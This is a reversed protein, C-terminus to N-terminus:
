SSIVSLSKLCKQKFEEQTLNFEKGSYKIIEEYMSEINVLNYDNNNIDVFLKIFIIDTHIRFPHAKILVYNLVPGIEDAGIEKDEGENFKVLSEIYNFINYICELKKYPTREINIQKFENLIDPLMIDFIYDKKIILNPEIWSLNETKKFINKDLNDPEPPYIKNYLKNMVYNEIKKQYLNKYKDWEIGINIVKEKIIDFYKNIKENIGLEKIIDFPNIEQNIQYKSLNPFYSTFAEITKFITINKKPIEHTVKNEFIKEKISSKNLEFKKDEKEYLFTVEIPIFEKEAIEKIKENAIINNFLQKQNGYYNYRKDIVKLKNRFLILIEFNLNNISNNLDEKLEDFLKKFDNEKYDKPIKNLYELLSNIYWISPITNNNLIFTPLSMYAKIEELMKIINSTSGINFDSKDLIRYNGLSCCLYNKVKIINKENESLLNQENNGKKNKNKDDEIKIYFNAIKNNLSFLNKYKKEIILKNYVYYVEIEDDEKKDQVKNDTKKYLKIKDQYISNIEKMIETAKIRSLSKKIQNVKPNNSNFLNDSKKLGKVLYYLNDYNFCISIYSCIQDKNENFYEYFYDRPLQENIYQEIFFPLHVNTTKCFFNIIKDMNDMFFWNFPTYDGEELNNLFFKGSFLKKIIFNIVEINKITNGSIVFDSIFAKFSPFSLFSVLLKGIIFKSIFSNVEIKTIDKFKNAILISIIKCIYKISNPLLLMNKMLDDILINIFSIIEIFNNQYFSLMYDPSNTYLMNNMLTSNSYLEENSKIENKLKSYYEFLIDKNEKKANEERAEIDNIKIDPSYKEVFINNRKNSKLNNEENSFNISLDLLKRNIIKKYYEDLNNSNVKEINNKEENKLTNFEKLIESVKFNIERFSCEREIKEITQIIVKKFFIQIDPVKQLEELLFGCKTNELFNDVQNINDLEDIEKKLMITIIYLLNNEIYNASLHNYFFNHCIFPALNTQVIKPDSNELIHSIVEPYNWLGNLFSSIYININRSNFDEDLSTRLFFKAEFLEKRDKIGKNILM